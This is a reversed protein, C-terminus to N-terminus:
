QTDTLFSCYWWILYPRVISMRKKFLFVYLAELKIMNFASSLDIFLVRVYPGTKPANPHRAIFHVLITVTDETSHDKKYVFLFPDFKEQISQSLKHSIIRELLSTLAALQFDPVQSKLSHSLIHCRGSLRPM